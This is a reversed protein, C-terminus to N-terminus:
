APPTPPCRGATKAILYKTNKGQNRQEQKLQNALWHQGTQYQLVWANLLSTPQLLRIHPTQQLNIIAQGMTNIVYPPISHKDTVLCTKHLIAQSAKLDVGHIHPNHEKCQSYAYERLSHIVTRTWCTPKFAQNPYRHHMYTTM